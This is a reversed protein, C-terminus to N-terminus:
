TSGPVSPPYPVVTTAELVNFVITGAREQEKWFIGTVEVSRHIIIPPASLTRDHRGYVVISHNEQALRLVFDVYLETEDLHLEPQTIHGRVSILQKHYDGNQTLLEPISVQQAPTSFTERKWLQVHPEIFSFSQDHWIWGNSMFLISGIFLSVYSSFFLM